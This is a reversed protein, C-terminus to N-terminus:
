KRIRKKIFTFIFISISFLSCIYCIIDKYKVYLSINNESYISGVVFTRKYMETEKFFRGYPDIFCSIGGNAARAIWRRNEVSRFSAFQKHQQPGSFEGFWSDNTIITIFNAGKETFGTTFAPFVSEYCILTAFKLTDGSSLSFNFVTQEKGVNWNSIGVSWKVLDGLIPIYELYPTRESFPVLRMKEYFQTVNKNPEFLVAGNYTTYILSTDIESFKADSPIADKKSYRNLLPVGTAIYVNNKNVFEQIKNVQEPFNGSLLFVPLASEPWLIYEAGNKVCSDSLSLYLEIQQDLSGANWKDWPDFNPQVLGVKLEQGSYFGENLIIKGYIFQFLLIIIVISIKNLAFRYHKDQLNKISVYILVNIVLIVFSIGYVGFIDACQILALNYSLANGLLLWPGAFDGISRLYEITLWIAIFSFLSIKIGSNKRIYIYLAIGIIYIFPNILITFVAGIMMFIDTNQSWGGLWYVAIAHFIVLSIYSYFIIEKRTKLDELVILLPILAFFIFFGSRFPPFSFALLLGSLISLLIRKNIFKPIKM